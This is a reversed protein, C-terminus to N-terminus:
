VNKPLSCVARQTWKSIETEATIERWSRGQARLVAIKPADVVVRPRGLRKGKAKLAALASRVWDRILKREFEAISAFIGFV